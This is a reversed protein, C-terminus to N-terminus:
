NLLLSNEKIYNLYEQQNIAVSSTNLPSKWVRALLLSNWRWLVEHTDKTAKVWAWTYDVQRAAQSHYEDM